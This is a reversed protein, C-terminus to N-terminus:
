AAQGAKTAPSLMCGAHYFCACWVFCRCCVISCSCRASPHQVPVAVGQVAVEGGADHCRQHVEWSCGHRQWIIVSFWETKRVSIQRDSSDGGAPQVLLMGSSAPPAAMMCAHVVHRWPVLAMLHVHASGAVVLSRWVGDMGRGVMSSRNTLDPAPASNTLLQQQMSCM